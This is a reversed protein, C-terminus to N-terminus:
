NNKENNRRNILNLKCFINLNMILNFYIFFKHPM